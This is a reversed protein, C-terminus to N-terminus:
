ILYGPSMDVRVAPKVVDFIRMLLMMAVFPDLNRTMSMLFKDRLFFRPLNYYMTM